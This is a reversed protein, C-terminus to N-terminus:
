SRSKQEIFLGEFAIFMQEKNLLANRDWGYRNMIINFSRGTGISSQSGCILMKKCLEVYKNGSHFITHFYRVFRKAIQAQICLDDIIVPILTNHTRYPLKLLMRICKRWATYLNEMFPKSLDWLHYGYLSMCHSKFLHYKVNYGAHYFQSMLVNTRKYLDSVAMQIRRQMVNKGLLTGLHIEAPSPLLITGDFIIEVAV